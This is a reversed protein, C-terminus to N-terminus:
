KKYGRLFDGYSMEKKGEPKVRTIKLEKDKVEMDTIIVRIKKSEKEVFFYIGPWPYFALFKRYIIELNDKELDVLGDEKTIKKTFTAQSHNQERPKIKGDVWEPIIKVLMEGGLEALKEELKKYNPFQFNGRGVNGQSTLAPSSISFARQALTPGHDVEEDMQMITIGTEAEGSLIFYQIPSPGRYKPLLSPHANLAGYKPTNIIDQPIIKGYAAVVFLDYDAKKIPSDDELKKLSVPQALNVNHEQAWVKAPSPILEKKRGQPKDPVTVILRPVLGNKHLVSLVKVSFDSTGFFAFKINKDTKEAINILDIDKDIFLVGNLHDIEHQIIQAMLGSVGRTFKEGKENYAEVTLKTARKLTGYVGNVSLCGESVIQKKKSVRIIKPNIFVAIKKEENTKKDVAKKSFLHEKVIFIRLSVGIQPAALAVGDKASYLTKIMEDILGGIKEGGIDKLPTEIAKERLIKNEAQIIKAM